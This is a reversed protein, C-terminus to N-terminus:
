IRKISYELYDRIIEVQREISTNELIALIENISLIRDIKSETIKELIYNNEINMKEIIFDKLEEEKEIAVFKNNYRPEGILYFTEEKNEKVYNILEKIEMTNM